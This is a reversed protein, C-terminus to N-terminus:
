IDVHRTAIIRDIEHIDHEILSRVQAFFSSLDEGLIPYRWFHKWLKVQSGLGTFTLLLLSDRLKELFVPNNDSIQALSRINRATELLDVVKALQRATQIDLVETPMRIPPGSPAFRHLVIALLVPETHKKMRLTTRASRQLQDRKGLLVPVLASFADASLNPAAM